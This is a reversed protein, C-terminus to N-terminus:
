SISSKQHSRFFMIQFLDWFQLPQEEFYPFYELEGAQDVLIVESQTTQRVLHIPVVKHSKTFLGGNIKAVIDTVIKTEPNIVIRELSGIKKGKATIISANKQFLIKEDVTIEM